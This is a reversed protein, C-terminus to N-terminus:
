SIQGYHQSATDRPQESGPREGIGVALDDDDVAVLQDPDAFGPAPNRLAAMDM